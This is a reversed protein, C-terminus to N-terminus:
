ESSRSPVSATSSSRSSTSRQLAARGRCGGRAAPLVLRAGEAYLAAVFGPRDGRVHLVGGPADLARVPARSLLGARRAPDVVVIAEDTPEFWRAVAALGAFWAALVLAAAGAFRLVRAAGRPETTTSM